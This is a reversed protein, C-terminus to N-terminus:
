LFGNLIDKLIMLAKQENLVHKEYYGELDGDCIEIIM